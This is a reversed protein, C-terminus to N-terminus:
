KNNLMARAQERANRLGSTVVINFPLLDALRNIQYTLYDTLQVGSKKVWM